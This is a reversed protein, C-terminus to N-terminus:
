VSPKSIILFHTIENNNYAFGTGNWTEWHVKGDKRMVFYKDYHKPKEEPYKKWGYIEDAYDMLAEALTDDSETWTKGYEKDRHKIFGIANNLTNKM